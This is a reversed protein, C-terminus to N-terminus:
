RLVFPLVLLCVALLVCFSHHLAKKLPPHPPTTTLQKARRGLMTAHRVPLVLAKASGSVVNSGLFALNATDTLAERRPLAEGRNEGAGSEGAVAAQGGGRGQAELGRPSGPVPSVGGNNGEWGPRGSFAGAM